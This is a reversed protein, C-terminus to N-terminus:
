QLRGHWLWQSAQEATASDRQVYWVESDHQLVKLFHAWLLCRQAKVGKFGRTLHFFFYSLDLWIVAVSMSSSSTDKTKWGRSFQKLIHPWLPAFLLISVDSFRHNSMSTVRHHSALYLFNCWVFHQQQVGATKGAPYSSNIERSVSLTNVSLWM